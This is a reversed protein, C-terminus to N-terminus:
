GLKDEAFQAQVEEIAQRNKVLAGVCDRDFRTDALEILYQFADDISWAEKYPRKSTLADFVDAVGTIRAEIPIADGKQGYPYGTGNMAEHHYLAINRLVTAHSSGDLRFDALMHDIIEHGKLTHTKMVEFEEPTLKGKKLLINDPIAIKGIDHLPAFIFIHEVDTDSLGYKPAIERAILRAYHAVRDVHAGTEFDRHHSLGTAARVTAIMARPTALSDLVLLALLHGLLDFFHLSSEDFANKTQANFFLFGVFEGNRFIPLTYSSGYAARITSAHATASGYLDTDNVIRAQRRAVIESLSTSKALRAEYLTLPNEGEGAHAFTKLTDTDADYLAVAIRAVQPIREHVFGYVAALKEPLGIDENLSSLGDEHFFSNNDQADVIAV